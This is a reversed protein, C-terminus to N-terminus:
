ARPLGSGLAGPARKIRKRLQRSFGFAAAAGFLPLPAPVPATYLPTAQAYVLSEGATSYYYDPNSMCSATCWNRGDLLGLGEQYAFVPGSTNGGYSNPTGLNAGVATAFSNALAQSGWWPMVGGPPLAFKSTNANYTGTFTTVNYQVGGVTVVYAQAHGAALTGVAVAAALASKALSAGNCRRHSFFTSTM